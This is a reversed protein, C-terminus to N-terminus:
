GGRQRCKHVYTQLLERLQKRARTIRTRVTSHSIGCHNAYVKPDCGEITVSIFAERFDEPLESIVMEYDIVLCYDNLAATRCSAMTCTEPDDLSAAVEKRRYTRTRNLATRTITKHLWAYSMKVPLAGGAKLIKVMVDQAIDTWDHRYGYRTRVIRLVDAYCVEAMEQARGPNPGNGSQEAHDNEAVTLIVTM